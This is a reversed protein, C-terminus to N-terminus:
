DYANLFRPTPPLALLPRLSKDHTDRHPSAPPSAPRCRPSPPERSPCPTAAVLPLLRPPPGPAPVQSNRRLRFLYSCPVPGATQPGRFDILWPWGAAPFDAPPGVAHALQSRRRRSSSAVRRPARLCPAPAPDARPRAAPQRAAASAARAAAPSAWGVLPGLKPSAPGYNEPLNRLRQHLIVQQPKRPPQSIQKVDPAPNAM